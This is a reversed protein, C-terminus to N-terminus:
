SGIHNKRLILDREARVAADDLDSKPTDKILTGIADIAIQADALFEDAMQFMFMMGPWSDVTCSIGAEEALHRFEIVQRLLIEKEGVQIYVPPFGKLKEPLACLPSM